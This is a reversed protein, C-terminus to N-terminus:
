DSKQKKRIRLLLFVMGYGVLTAASVLLGARLGPTQYTLEITYTGPELPIGMFLTNVRELPVDKGNVKAHWGTSYPISLCLLRNEQVSISGTIQDTGMQVNELVNEKLSRINESFHTMPQCLIELRDCSFSGAASFTITCEKQAQASYGLNALFDDRGFYFNYSPTFYQITTNNFAKVYLALSQPTSPFPNVLRKGNAKRIIKQKPEAFQFQMNDIKLYTEADPLGSFRLTMQAGGYKIAFRDGDQEIGKMEVIEYPVSKADFVPSANPLTGPSDVVACQLLAQQKELANLGEYQGTTMCSRYTYGIPLANQNELVGKTETERYGYPVAKSGAPAAYYKTSFLSYLAARRDLGIFQVPANLTNLELGKLLSTLNGDTLSFYSSTDNLHLTLSSNYVSVGSAGVRYFSDDELAKLAKLPSDTIKSTVKSSDIFGNQFARYRAFGNGGVCICVLLLLCTSRIFATSRARPKGLVVFLLVFGCCGALIILALNIRKDAGGTLLLCVLTYVSACFLTLVGEKKSLVVMEPLMQATIYAILFSYGFIWRNTVYGMGNFIYGFLPICLFISLLLFGLRLSLSPARMNRKRMCFLLIICLFSLPTYGTASWYSPTNSSLFNSFLEAYYHLSYALMSHTYGSSFRGNNFFAILVPLFIAASLLLGTVYGAGCKLTLLAFSRIRHTHYMQFFRFLAYLMSLLTLVFLFYFNSVASVCVSFIFLHPRKGAFIKELGLLFLPLYIMANVFFPHYAAATLAFGCFAYCLAGAISSFCRQKRFLAYFLFGAGALFLRLVTLFAYMYETQAPRVFVYLLNLPDGFAYYNLTTLVDSGVGIQFDWEPLHLSGTQLFDRIACRLYDCFYAAAPYHQQLADGSYILSKHHLLLPTYIIGGAIIFLCFYLLFAYRRKKAPDLQSWSSVYREIRRNM